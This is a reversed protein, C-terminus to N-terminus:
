RPAWERDRTILTARRSRILSLSVTVLYRICQTRISLTLAPFKGANPQNQTANVEFYAWTGSYSIKSFCIRIVQRDAGPTRFQERKAYAWVDEVAAKM